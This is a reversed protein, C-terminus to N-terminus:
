GFVVHHAGHPLDIRRVPTLGPQDTPGVEYIQLGSGDTGPRGEFVTAVFYRGSPDFAGGEPLVGTLPYDGVKDLQGTESDFRFLSVSADRDHGAAGESLASGRMNVTAVWTGDPSVALGEASRDSDATAVVRPPEGETGMEIVSVTSPRSPLRDTLSAATLDRGWNSTLYYRGDPTFRGVFPDPGTDVVGRPELIAGDASSAFFAVRNQTNLNVALLDGGPHWSVNTATVGGRPGPASGTIGLTALDFERPRGFGQGARWPVLSLVSAAPTNSVVAVAAGDPSVALAEPSEVVTVEAATVPADRDTVDVASLRNGPVLDAASTDGPARPKLRETVFATTGDPSLALVEPAATVSNSVEVAATSVQGDRLSVASLVDRHGAGAPALVGDAYTSATHDGDHLVLMPDLSLGPSDEAASCGAL